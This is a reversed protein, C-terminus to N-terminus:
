PFLQANLILVSIQVTFISFSVIGILQWDPFLNINHLIIQGLYILWFIVLIVVTVIRFIQFFSFGRKVETRFRIIATFADYMQFFSRYSFYVFLLSLLYFVYSNLTPFWLVFKTLIWFLFSIFVLSALFEFKESRLLRMNEGFTSKIRSGNM